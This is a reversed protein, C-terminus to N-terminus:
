NSKTSDIGFCQLSNDVSCAWFRDYIMTAYVTFIFEMPNKAWVFTSKQTKRFDVKTQVRFVSVPVEHM